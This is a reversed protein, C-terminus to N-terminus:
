VGNAEVLQSPERAPPEAVQDLADHVESTPDEQEIGIHM